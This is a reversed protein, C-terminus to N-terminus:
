RLDLPWLPVLQLQCPHRHAWCCVGDWVSLPLFIRTMDRLSVNLSYISAFICGPLITDRSFWWRQENSRSGPTPRQPVTQCPSCGQHLSSNLARTRHHQASTGTWHQYVPSERCVLHSWNGSQWYHLELESYYCFISAKWCKELSHM